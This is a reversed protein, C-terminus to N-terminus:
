KGHIAHLKMVVGQASLLSAGKKVLAFVISRSRAVGTAFGKIDAGVLAAKSKMQRAGALPNSGDINGAFRQLYGLVVFFQIGDAVFILDLPHFGVGKVQHLVIRSGSLLIVGNHEVRRGEGFGFSM